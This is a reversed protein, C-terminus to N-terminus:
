RDRPRAHGGSSVQLLRVVWDGQRTRRRPPNCVCPRKTNGRLTLTNWPSDESLRNPGVEDEVSTSAHVIPAVM